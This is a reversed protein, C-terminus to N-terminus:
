GLLAIGKTLTRLDLTWSYVEQEFGKVIQSGFNNLNRIYVYFCFNFSDSPIFVFKGGARKVESLFARLESVQNPDNKNIIEIKFGEAEGFYASWIQGHTTVKTGEFFEPGDKRGPQLKANSFSRLEGLFVEGIELFAKTNLSDIFAWRFNQYDRLLDFEGSCLNNFDAHIRDALSLNFDAGGSASYLDWPCFGSAPPCGLDCAQFMLVDTSNVLTTLNHNFIATFNPRRAYPLEACIWEPVEGPAVGIGEFRLPKSPRVNYVNEVVYPSFESSAYLSCDSNLYNEIAYNIM